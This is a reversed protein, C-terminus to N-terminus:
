TAHKQPIQLLNGPHTELLLCMLNVTHIRGTKQTTHHSGGLLLLKLDTPLTTASAPPLSKACLTEATLKSVRRFLNHIRFSSSRLHTFDLWFSNETSVPHRSLKVTPSIQVESLNRMLYVAHTGSFLLLFDVDLASSRERVQWEPTGCVM